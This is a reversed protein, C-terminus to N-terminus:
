LTKLTNTQNHLMYIKQEGNNLVINLNGGQITQCDDNPYFINCVREGDNFGTNQVSRSEQGNNNNSLAVVTKGRAFVYVKDDVFKEEAPYNWVQGRKRAAVVTQLFKYGEFQNNMNTWLPERNGPDNCGGM